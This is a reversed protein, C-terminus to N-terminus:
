PLKRLYTNGLIIELLFLLVGPWLFFPFLESARTYNKVEIKTKELKDIEDFVNKLVNEDTAWFFKGGTAEAVAILTESDIESMVISGDRNRQVRKGWFPDDVPIPAGGERGMGITYIKIGLAQAVQAATEPSVKGRNSEGDTILIIVKSHAQSNKLRNISNILATGIATGSPDVIGISVEDLFNLLIGYELTLPSQTFAEAGFIVLGLRDNERGAVFDKVVEKAAELRNQPKFDEAKMSSSVDLTIILDSAETYVVKEESTSQPRALSIIILIVAAVRLINLAYRYFLSKSSKIKKITGLDSFRISGRRRNTERFGYYLLFPIVLLALLWLPSDLRIM